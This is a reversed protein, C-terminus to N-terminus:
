ATVRFLLSNAMGVARAGKPQGVRSALEGYSLTEGYPIKVLENWVQEQFPTGHPAMPLDFRQRSGACYESLQQVADAAADDSVTPSYGRKVLDSIVQTDDVDGAFGLQVLNGSKDVAVYLREVQTSFFRLWVQM